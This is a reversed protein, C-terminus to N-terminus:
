QAIVEEQYKKHAEYVAGKIHQRNCKGCYYPNGESALALMQKAEPEIILTKALMMERTPHEAYWEDKRRLKGERFILGLEARERDKRRSM